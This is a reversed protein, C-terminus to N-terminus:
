RYGSVTPIRYDRRLKFSANDREIEKRVIANSAAEHQQLPKGCRHCPPGYLSLRHHWIANPNTEIGSNIRSETVMPTRAM